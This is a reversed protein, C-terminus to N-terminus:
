RSLKRELWDALQPIHLEALILHGLNRLAESPDKTAENHSEGCWCTM